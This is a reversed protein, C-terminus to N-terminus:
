VVAPRLEGGHHTIIKVCVRVCVRESQGDREETEEREEM